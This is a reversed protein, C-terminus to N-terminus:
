YHGIVVVYSRLVCIRATAPHVETDAMMGLNLTEFLLHRVNRYSKAESAFSSNTMHSRSILM